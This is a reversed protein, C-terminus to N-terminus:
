YNVLNSKESILVIRAHIQRAETTSLKSKINLMLILLIHIVWIGTSNWGTTKGLSEHKWFSCMGVKGWGVLEVGCEASCRGPPRFGDVQFLLLRELGGSQQNATKKVRKDSIWESAMTDQQLLVPRHQEINNVNGWSRLNNQSFMFRSEVGNSSRMRCEIGRECRVLPGQVYTRFSWRIKAIVFYRM